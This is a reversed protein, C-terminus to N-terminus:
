AHAADTIAIIRKVIRVLEAADDDGLARLVKVVEAMAAEHKETAVERGADTIYVLVKRKDSEDSRREIWQKKELSNLATAVRGTTIKLFKSIDGSTIGDCVLNLYVLIAIEGQSVDRQTKQFPSKSSRYLSYVLEDALCRYDM